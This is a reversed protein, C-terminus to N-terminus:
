KYACASLLASARSSWHLLSLAWTSSREFCFWSRLLRFARRVCSFKSRCLCTCSNSEELAARDLALPCNCCARSSVLLLNSSSDLTLLNINNYYKIIDGCGIVFSAFANQLVNTDVGRNNWATVEKVNPAHLLCNTKFTKLGARPENLNDNHECCRLWIVIWNLLRWTSNSWNVALYSSSASAAPFRLAVTLLSCISRWFRREFYSLSMAARRSSSSSKRNTHKYM